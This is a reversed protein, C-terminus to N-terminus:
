MKEENGEVAAVGIAAHLAIKNILLCVFLNALVESTHNTKSLLSNENANRWCPFTLEWVM